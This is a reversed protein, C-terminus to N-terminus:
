EGIWLNMIGGMSAIIGVINMAGREEVVTLNVSALKVNIQLFNDRLLDYDPEPMGHNSGDYHTLNENIVFRQWDDIEDVALTYFASGRHLRHPWVTSSATTKIKLERCPPLCTCDNLNGESMYYLSCDHKTVTQTFNDYIKGCFPYNALARPSINSQFDLCGCVKTALIQQCAARCTEYTYRYDKEYSMKKENTCLGHPEGLRSYQTVDAVITTEFGAPARIADSMLPLTGHAHVYVAVGSGYTHDASTLFQSGAGGIDQVYFVGTFSQIKTLYSTPLSFTVCAGYFQNFFFTAYRSENGADEYKCYIYNGFDTFESILDNAAFKWPAWKCERIFKPLISKLATDDTVNINQWLGDVDSLELLTDQLLSLQDYNLALVSVDSDFHERWLPRVKNTMYDVLLTQTTNEAAPALNCVSIDPFPVIQTSEANTITTPYQFYELFLLTLQFTSVGLGVLLTLTWLVRQCITKSKLVKGAGKVSSTEIFARLVQLSCTNLAGTLAM